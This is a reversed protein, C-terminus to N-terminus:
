AVMAFKQIRNEIYTKLETQLGLEVDFERFQYNWIDNNVLEKAKAMIKQTLKIWNVIKPFELTGSHQRFELTGHRWFSQINVVRYRNTTCELRDRLLRIENPTLHHAYQNNRRSKPMIKDFTSRYKHYVVLANRAVKEALRGHMHKCGHHVHLGCTKNVMCNNEVLVKCVKEIQKLGEVGKLIPSVLENRGEYGSLHSHVSGDTSMKWYTRTLLGNRDRHEDDHNWAETQTEIGIATLKRAINSHTLSSPRLFEIEVGFTAQQDFDIVNLNFASTGTAEDTPEIVPRPRPQTSTPRTRNLHFDEIPSNIDFIHQPSTDQIRVRGRQLIPNYRPDDFIPRPSRRRFVVRWIRTGDDRVRDEIRVFRHRPTLRTRVVEADTQVEYDEYTEDSNLNTPASTPQIPIVPTATANALSSATSQEAVIVPRHILQLRTMAGALETVQSTPWREPASSARRVEIVARGLTEGRQLARFAVRLIRSRQARAIIQLDSERQRREVESNPNTPLPLTITAPEVTHREVLNIGVPQRPVLTHQPRILNLANMAVYLKKFYSIPWHCNFRNNIYAMTELATHREKLYHYAYKKYRGRRAERVLRNAEQRQEPTLTSTIPTLPM